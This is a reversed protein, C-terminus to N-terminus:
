ADHVDRPGQSPTPSVLTGRVTAFGPSDLVVQSIVALSLAETSDGLLATELRQKPWENRPQGGFNRACFDTWFTGIRLITCMLM